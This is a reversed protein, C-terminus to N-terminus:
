TGSVALFKGSAASPPRVIASLVGANATRVPPLWAHTQRQREYAGLSSSGQQSRHAAFDAVRSALGPRSRGIGAARGNKRVERSLADRRQRLSVRALGAISIRHHSRALIKIAVGGLSVKNNWAVRQTLKELEKNRRARPKGKDGGFTDPLADPQVTVYNHQVCWDQLTKQQEAATLRDWVDQLGKWEGQRFADPLAKNTWARRKKWEVHGADANDDARATLTINETREQGDRLAALRDQEVWHWLTEGDPGVAGPTTISAAVLVSWAAETHGAAKFSAPVQAEGIPQVEGSRARKRGAYQLKLDHQQESGFGMWKAKAAALHHAHADPDDEKVIGGMQEDRWAKPAQAWTLAVERPYRALVASQAASGLGAWVTRLQKVTKGSSADKDWQMQRAPTSDGPREGLLSVRMAHMHSAPVKTFAVAKPATGKKRKGGPAVGDVATVDTVVDLDEDDTHPDDGADPRGAAGEDGGVPGGGATHACLGAGAPAGAAGESGAAAPQQHAAGHIAQGPAPRGAAGEGGEGGRAAAAAGAAM